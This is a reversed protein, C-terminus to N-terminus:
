LIFWLSFYNLLLAEDGTVSFKDYYSFLMKSDFVRFKISKCVWKIPRFEDFIFVALRTCSGGRRSSRATPLIEFFIGIADM